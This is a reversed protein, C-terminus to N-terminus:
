TNVIWPWKMAFVIADHPRRFRYTLVIDTGEYGLDREWAIDEPNPDCADTLGVNQFLWKFTKGNKNWMWDRDYEYKDVRITVCHEMMVGRDSGKNM